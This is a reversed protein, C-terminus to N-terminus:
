PISNVYHKSFILFGSGPVASAIGPILSDLLYLGIKLLLWFVRLGPDSAM